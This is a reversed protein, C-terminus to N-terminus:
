DPQESVASSQSSTTDEDEKEWTKFKPAWDVIPRGLFADLLRYTIARAAPPSSSGLHVAIGLNEKSLLLHFASVGGGHGEEFLIRHNAYTSVHWGLGYGAMLQGRREDPTAVCQPTQMEVMSSWKILPTRDQFGRRLLLRLWLACDTGCTSVRGNAINTNEMDLPAFLRDHIFEAFSHGSVRAIIETVAEFAPPLPAYRERFSTIAIDDPLNELCTLKGRSTLELRQGLLDRITIQSSIWPDPLVFDPLHRQVPDDWALRGDDVLLAATATIFAQTCTSTDFLTRETVPREGTTDATGWPSIVTESGKVVTLVAAPVQFYELTANIYAILEHNLSASM